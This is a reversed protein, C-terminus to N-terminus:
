HIVPHIPCCPTVNKGCTCYTEPRFGFNTLPEVAPTHNEPNVRKARIEDLEERFTKMWIHVLEINKELINVMVIIENIKQIIDKHSTTISYKDDLQKILKCYSRLFIIRNSYLCVYM